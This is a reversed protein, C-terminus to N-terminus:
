MDLVRLIKKSLIILVADLVYVINWGFILRILGAVPKGEQFRTIAGCLWSTIPILALIVSVLYELGFYDNKKAM